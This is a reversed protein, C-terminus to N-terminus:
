FTDQQQENIYHNVSRVMSWTLANMAQPSNEDEKLAESISFTGRVLDIKILCGAIEAIFRNHGLDYNADSQLNEFFAEIDVQHQQSDHGTLTFHTQGESHAVQALWKIFLRRLKIKLDAEQREPNMSKSDHDQEVLYRISFALWNMYDKGHLSQYVQLRLVDYLSELLGSTRQNNYKSERSCMISTTCSGTEDESWEVSVSKALVNAQACHALNYDAGTVGEAGIMWISRPSADKPELRVLSTGIFLGQDTRHVLDFATKIMTSGQDRPDQITGRIKRIWARYLNKSEPQFTILGTLYVDAHEGYVITQVNAEYAHQWKRLLRNSGPEDLLFDFFDHASNVMSTLSDRGSQEIAVDVPFLTDKFRVPSKLRGTQDLQLVNTGMAHSFLQFLRPLKDFPQNFVVSPTKQRKPSSQRGAQKAAKHPVRTKLSPTFKMAM